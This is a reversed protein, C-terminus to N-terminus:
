NQGDNKVGGRDEARQGFGDRFAQLCETSSSVADDAARRTGTGKKWVEARELVLKGTIEKEVAFEGLVREM